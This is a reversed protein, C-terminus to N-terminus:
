IHTATIESELKEHLSWCKHMDPREGGERLAIEFKKINRYYVAYTLQLRRITPMPPKYEATRWRTSDLLCPDGRKVARRNKVQDLLTATILNAGNYISSDTYWEDTTTNPDIEPRKDQLSELREASVPLFYHPSNEADDLDLQSAHIGVEQLQSLELPAGRLGAIHHFKDFLEERAKIHRPSKLNPM